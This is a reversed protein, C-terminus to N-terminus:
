TEDDMDQLLDAFNKYRKYTEPHAKMEEYEALAEQTETNCPRCRTTDDSVTRKSVNTNVM